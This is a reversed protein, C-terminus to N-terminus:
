HENQTAPPVGDNTSLQQSASVESPSPVIVWETDIMPTSDLSAAGDSLRHVRPPPPLVAPAPPPQVPLDSASSESSRRSRPRIDTMQLEQALCESRVMRIPELPHDTDGFVVPTDPLVIVPAETTASLPDKAPGDAVDATSYPSMDILTGMTTPTCFSEAVPPAITISLLAPETQQQDPEELFPNGSAFAPSLRGDTCLSATASASPSYQSAAATVDPQQQQLFADSSAEVFVHAVDMSVPFGTTDPFDVKNTVGESTEFTQETVDHPVDLSEAAERREFTTLDESPTVTQMEYAQSGMKSYGEAYMHAEELKMVYDLVSADVISRSTSLPVACACEQGSPKPMTAVGEETGQSASATGGRINVGSFQASLSSTDNNRLTNRRKAWPIAFLLLGGLMVITGAVYFAPHYSQASSRIWSDNDTNLPSQVM